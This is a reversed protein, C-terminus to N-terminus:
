AAKRRYRAQERRQEARRRTGAACGVGVLLNDHSGSIAPIGQDNMRLSMAEGTELAAGTVTGRNREQHKRGQRGM